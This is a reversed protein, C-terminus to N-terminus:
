SLRVINNDARDARFDPANWMEYSVMPDDLAGVRRPVAAAATARARAAAIEPNRERAQELVDSLRLRAAPQGGHALSGARRRWSSTGCTSGSRAGTAHPRAEM